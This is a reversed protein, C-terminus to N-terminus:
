YVGQMKNTALQVIDTTSLTTEAHYFLYGMTLPSDEWLQGNHLVTSPLSYFSFFDTVQGEREIVFAYVVGDGADHGM